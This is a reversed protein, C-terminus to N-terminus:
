EQDVKQLSLEPLLHLRAKGRLSSLTSLDVLRASPLWATIDAQLLLRSRPSSLHNSMARWYEFPRAIRVSIWQDKSTLSSPCTDILHRPGVAVGDARQLSEIFQTSTHELTQGWLIADCHSGGGNRLLRNLVGACRWDRDVESDVGLIESERRCTTSCARWTQILFSM